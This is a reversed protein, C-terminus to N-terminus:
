DKQSIVNHILIKNLGILTLTPQHDLEPYFNKLENIMWKVDGGTLILQFSSSIEKRLMGIFGVCECVAGLVGGNTIASHTDYGLPTTSSSIPILPLRATFEHMAKLRMEIGPTINGGLYHKENNIYDYKICTGADVVLCANDPYLTFAGVIAALRDKGLTKPTKYANVIPLPTTEDLVICTNNTAKITNLVDESFSHSVSSIIIHEINNNKILSMVFDDYGHTTTGSDVLLENQFIGWKLRTNGIDIVLNRV